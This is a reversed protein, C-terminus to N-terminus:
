CAHRSRDDDVHRETDWQAHVPYSRRMVISSGGADDRIGRGGPGLLAESSV